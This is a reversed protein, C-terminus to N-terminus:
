KAADDYLQELTKDSRSGKKGNESISLIRLNTWHAMVEPPVKNTWGDHISFVHDIHNHKDRPIHSNEILDRHQAYTQNTKRIVRQWYRKYGISDEMPRALWHESEGTRAKYSDACKKQFDRNSSKASLSSYTLYRNEYWKVLVGTTPCIPISWVDNLIHWCRQKPLADDPLFSTAEVVENWLGSDRNVLWRCAFRDTHEELYKLLKM